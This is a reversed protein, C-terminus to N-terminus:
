MKTASCSRATVQEGHRLATETLDPNLEYAKPIFDIRVGSKFRNRIAQITVGRDDITPWGASWRPDRVIPITQGIPYWRAALEQDYDLQEVRERILGLLGM